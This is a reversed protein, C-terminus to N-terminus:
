SLVGGGGEKRGNLEYLVRLNHPSRCMKGGNELHLQEVKRQTSTMCVDQM